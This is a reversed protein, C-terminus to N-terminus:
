LAATASNVVCVTESNGGIERIYDRYIETKPKGMVASLKDLLVWCYANADLSRRERYEKIELAYKIPKMEAVFRRAEMNPIAVCLFSEDDYVMVKAKEFVSKM